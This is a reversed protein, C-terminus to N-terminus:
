ILVAQNVSSAFTCTCYYLTITPPIRGTDVVYGAVRLDAEDTWESTSQFCLDGTRRQLQNLKVEVHTQKTGQFILPPSSFSGNTVCALLTFHFFIYLLILSELPAGQPHSPERDSDLLCRTRSSREDGSVRQLAATFRTSLALRELCCFM